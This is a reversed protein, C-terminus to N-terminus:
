SSMHMLSGSSNGSSSDGSTQDGESSLNLEKYDKILNDLRQAEPDDTILVRGVPWRSHVDDMKIYDAEDLAGMLEAVHNLLEIERPQMQDKLLRLTMRAMYNTEGQDRLGKVALVLTSRNADLDSETSAAIKELAMFGLLSLPATLCIDTSYFGHRLYYLRMLTEFHNSADTAIQHPSNEDEATEVTVFPAFLTILIMHYEM